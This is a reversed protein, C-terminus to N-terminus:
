KAGKQPKHKHPKPESAGERRQAKMFDYLREAATEWSGSRAKAIIGGLTEAADAPLKGADRYGKLRQECEALRSEDQNRVATYLADVTNFVDEDAGMQPPASRYALVAGAVAVLLLGALAYRVVRSRQDPAEERKTTAM